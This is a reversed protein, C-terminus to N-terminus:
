GGSRYPRTLIEPLHANPDEFYVGCGGDAYELDGRCHPALPWLEANRKLLPQSIEANERLKAQFRHGGVNSLKGTRQFWRQGTIGGVPDDDSRCEAEVCPQDRAVYTHALRVADVGDPLGM